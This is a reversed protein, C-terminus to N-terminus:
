LFDLQVWTVAQVMPIETPTGFSGIESFKM